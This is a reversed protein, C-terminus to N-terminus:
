NVRFPLFKTNIRDYVGNNKIRDLAADMPEKLEPRRRSIGFAADGALTPDGMATVTLNL